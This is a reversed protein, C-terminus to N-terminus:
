FAEKLERTKDAANKIKEDITEGDAISKVIASGVILGDAYGKLNKVHEPKSIGFGLCKPIDSIKNLKEFMEDFNTAFANRMGTVGLSSVCYLFGKAKGCIKEVREETSTPAALLIQYVGYKETYEEIEWSEEFPLDPVIVGDVGSLNCNEFFKEKGYALISNFYMLFVIPIETKLRLRKVMDFIKDLNIGNKLARINAEQIVPGEAIPDSFPIGLEVLDAGNKEMELVIDLTTDIDPDGATVFTIFAKKNENKLNKFLIDIRNEANNKM